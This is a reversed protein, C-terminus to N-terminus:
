HLLVMHSMQPKLPKFINSAQLLGVTEVNYKESEKNGFIM